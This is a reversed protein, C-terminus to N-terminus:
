EIETALKKKEILLNLGRIDGKMIKNKIRDKVKKM